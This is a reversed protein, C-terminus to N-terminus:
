MDLQPYRQILDKRTTIPTPNPNHYAYGEAQLKSIETVAAPVVTTLDYFADAEYGRAKAANRCVRFRVGQEHLSKIEDYFDPFADRNLRSFLHVTEGHVVVVLKSAALDGFEKLTSIHNRLFRVANRADSLEAFNFDYLSKQPKYRTADFTSPADPGAWALGMGMWSSILVALLLKKM